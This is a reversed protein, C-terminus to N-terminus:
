SGDQSMSINDYDKFFVTIMAIKDNQWVEGFVGFVDSFKSASADPELLKNIIVLIKSDLACSIEEYGGRSRLVTLHKRLYQADTGHYDRM